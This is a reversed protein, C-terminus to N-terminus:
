VKESVVDMKRILNAVGEQWNDENDIVVDCKEKWPQIFEIDSPRVHNDWQYQVERNNYGRITLDRYKRRKLRTEVSASIFVKIDIMERVRMDHLAFLGEVILWLSPTKIVCESKMMDRNFTYTDIEVTEGRQLAYIDRVLNDYIIAEPLDFNTEGKDDVPIESIPRYYDDLSLITIDDGFHDRIGNLITSKGSGSGGTLAVIKM